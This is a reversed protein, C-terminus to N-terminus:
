VVETRQSLFEMDADTIIGQSSYVKPNMVGPVEPPLHDSTPILVHILEHMAAAVIHGRYVEPTVIGTQKETLRTIWLTDYWKGDHHKSCGAIYKGEPLPIDKFKEPYCNRPGDEVTQWRVKMGKPNANITAQGAVVVGVDTWAQLAALFIKELEPDDVVFDVVALPEPRQACAVLLLAAIAIFAWM